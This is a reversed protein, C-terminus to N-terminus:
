VYFGAIGSREGYNVLAARKCTDIYSRIHAINGGLTCVAHLGTALVAYRIRHEGGHQVVVGGSATISDVYGKLESLLQVSFCARPRPNMLAWYAGTEEDFRTNLQRSTPPNLYHVDAIASDRICM